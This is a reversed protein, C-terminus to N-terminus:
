GPRINGGRGTVLLASQSCSRSHHLESYSFHGGQPQRQQRHRPAQSRLQAPLPISCSGALLWTLQKEGTRRTRRPPTRSPLPWCCLLLHRLFRCLVISLGSLLHAHTRQRSAQMWGDMWGGMWRLRQRGEGAGWWERGGSFSSVRKDNCISSATASCVQAHPGADGDSGEEGKNLHVACCTVRNTGQRGGEGRVACVAGMHGQHHTTWRM